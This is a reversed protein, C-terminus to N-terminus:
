IRLEWLAHEILTRELRPLDWGLHLYADVEFASATGGLSWYYSYLQDVSLGQSRMQALAEDHGQPEDAQGSSWTARAVERYRLVSVMAAIEADLARTRAEALAERARQADGPGLPM